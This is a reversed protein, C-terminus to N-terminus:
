RELIHQGNLRPSQWVPSVSLKQCGISQGSWAYGPTLVNCSLDDGPMVRVRSMRCMSGEVCQWVGGGGMKHPLVRTVCQALPYRVARPAKRTDTSGGIM